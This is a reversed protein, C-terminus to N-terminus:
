CTWGTGDPDVVVVEEVVLARETAVLLGTQAALQARVSEVVVGLDLHHADVQAVSEERLRRLRDTTKGIAPPSPGRM